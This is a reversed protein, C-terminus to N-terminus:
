IVIKNPDMRFDLYFNFVTDMMPKNYNRIIKINYFGFGLDDNTTDNVSNHDVVWDFGENSTLENPSVFFIDSATDFETTFNYNQDYIPSNDAKKAIIKYTVSDVDRIFLYIEPGGTQWNTNGIFLISILFLITTIKKKM